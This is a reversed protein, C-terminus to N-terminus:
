TVISETRSKLSSIFITRSEFSVPIANAIESTVPNGTWFSVGLDGQFASSIWRFYQIHVPVDLGMQARIYDASLEVGSLSAAEEAMEAVMMDIVDGPIFRLSFFVILTVIFLTPIMLLLRRYTYTGM